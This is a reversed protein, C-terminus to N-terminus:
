FFLCRIHECIQYSTSSRYHLAVMRGLGVQTTGLLEAAIGMRGLGVQTTGLLEAAIGMGTAAIGEM